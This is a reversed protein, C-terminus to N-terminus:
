SSESRKLESSNLKPGFINKNYEKPLGRHILFENPDAEHDFGVIMNCTDCVYKGMGFASSVLHQEGDCRTCTRQAVEEDTFLEQKEAVTQMFDDRETELM